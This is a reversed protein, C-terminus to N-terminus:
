EGRAQIFALLASRMLELATEADHEALYTYALRIHAQHDFDVPHVRCAGFDACFRRDDPSLLHSMDPTSRRWILTRREAFFRYPPAMSTTPSSRSGAGLASQIDYPGLRVGAALPM